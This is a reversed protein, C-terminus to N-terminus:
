DKMRGQRTAFAKVFPGADSVTVGSDDNACARCDKRRYLVKTQNDNVFFVFRGVPLLVRRVVVSTVCRNHARLFFGGDDNQPGSRWREFRKVIRAGAFVVVEPEWIAQTVSRHGGRFDNVHAFHKGTVLLWPNKGIFQKLRDFFRSLLLLLRYDQQVSSAVRTKNEAPRTTFADLTRVAIHGQRIVTTLPHDDTMIAIM